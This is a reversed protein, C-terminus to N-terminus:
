GFHRATYDKLLKEAARVKFRDGSEHATEVAARVKSYDREGKAAAPLEDLFTLAGGTTGLSVASGKRQFKVGFAFRHNVTKPIVLEVPVDLAAAIKRLIDVSGGRVGTELQSIYLRDSGVMEGLKAQTLDRYERVIKIRSEGSEEAHTIRKVLEFPLTEEEGNEIRRLIGIADEAGALDEINDRAAEILVNYDAEPMVVMRRGAIEILQPKGSPLEGTPLAPPETAVIPATKQPHPKLTM